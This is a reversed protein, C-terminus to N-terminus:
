NSTVALMTALKGIRTQRIIIAICEELVYTKVLIVRCLMGSPLM